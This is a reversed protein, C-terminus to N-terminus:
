TWLRPPSNTSSGRAGEHVLVQGDEGSSVLGRSTLALQTVAETHGDLEGLVALTEANLVLLAGSALGAYLTAGDASWCLALAAAPPALSALPVPSGAEYLLILGPDPTHHQHAHAAVAVRALAPHAAVVEGPKPLPEELLTHGKPLSYLGVHSGWTAALRADDPTFDVSWPMAKFKLRKIVRAAGPARVAVEGPSGDRYSDETGEMTAFMAGSPSWRPPRLGSRLKHEETVAGRADRLTLHKREFNYGTALALTEGDPHLALAYPRVEPLERVAGSAADLSWAVGRGCTLFVARTLDRAVGLSAIGWNYGDLAALEELAPLSWLVLRGKRSNYVALRTDSCSAVDFTWGSWSENEAQAVVGAGLRELSPLRQVLGAGWTGASVAVEGSPSVAVTSTGLLAGGGAADPTDEGARLIKLGQGGSVLLRGDALFALGDSSEAYRWVGEGAADWLTQVDGDSAAVWRGDPSAAVWQGRRMERKARRQEQQGTAVVFWTEMPLLDDSPPAWSALAGTARDWVDLGGGDQGIYVRSADPAYAIGVPLVPNSPAAIVAVEGTELTVEAVVARGRLYGWVLAHAGDPHAALRRVGIGCRVERVVALTDPDHIALGFGGGSVLRGDPLFTISWLAGRGLRM